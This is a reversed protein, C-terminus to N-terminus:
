IAVRGRWSNRLGAKKGVTEVKLRWCGSIDSYDILWRKVWSKDQYAELATHAEEETYFDQFNIFGWVCPEPEWELWLHYILNCRSLQNRRVEDDKAVNVLHLSWGLWQNPEMRYFGQYASYPNPDSKDLASRYGNWGDFIIGNNHYFCRRTQGLEICAVMTFVQFFQDKPYDWHAAIKQAKANIKDLLQPNIFIPKM